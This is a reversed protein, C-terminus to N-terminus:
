NKKRKKKPKEEEESESSSEEKKTKKLKKSSKSPKPPNKREEIKAQVTKEIEIFLMLNEAIITRELDTMKPTNVFGCRQLFIPIEDENLRGTKPDEKLEIRAGEFLSWTNKGDKILNDIVAQNRPDETCWPMINLDQQLNKLANVLADYIKLGHEKTAMNAIGGEEEETGKEVKIKVKKPQKKPPSDEVPAELLDATDFGKEEEEPPDTKMKQSEKEPTTKRKWNKTIPEEEVTSPPEPSPSKPKEEAEKKQKELAKKEKLAKVAKMAADLNRDYAKSIKKWEPSATPKM